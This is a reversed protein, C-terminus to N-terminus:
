AKWFAKTGAFRAFAQEAKLMLAEAQADTAALRAPTSKETGRGGGELGDAILAHRTALDNLGGLADQLDK